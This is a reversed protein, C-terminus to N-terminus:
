SGKGTRSRIRNTRNTEGHPEKSFHATCSTIKSNEPRSSSLIVLLVPQSFSSHPRPPRNFAKGHEAKEAISSYATRAKAIRFIHNTRTASPKSKQPRQVLSYGTRNAECKPNKIPETGATVSGPERKPKATMRRLPLWPCGGSAQGAMNPNSNNHM